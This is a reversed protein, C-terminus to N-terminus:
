WVIKLVEKVAISWAGSTLAFFGGLLILGSLAVFLLFEKKIILKLSKHM